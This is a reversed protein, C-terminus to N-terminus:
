MIKALFDLVCKEYEIKSYAYFDQHKAGEVAWFQKPAAAQNYMQQSEAFTTHRDATGALMLLPVKIKAIVRIPALREADFGLLPKVQWLLLPTLYRGAQGLEIVLRDAIANTLSPYVAEIILAKAGGKTAESMLAAAGGMSVGLLAIPKEPFRKQLYTFAADVNQSELYGFTIHKGASEGHAQFDFLLVSYGAQNLFEARPLMDRRSARVGHLLVVVGQNTKGQLLWGSLANKSLTPITVNEANDPLRGASLPHPASLVLGVVGYAVLFCLLLLASLYRKKM